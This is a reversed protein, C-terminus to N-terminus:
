EGVEVASKHSLAVRLVQKLVVPLGQVLVM